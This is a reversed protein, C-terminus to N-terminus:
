AQLTSMLKCLRCDHDILTCVAGARASVECELDSSHRRRLVQSLTKLMVGTDGETKM